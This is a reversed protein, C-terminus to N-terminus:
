KAARRIAEMATDTVNDTGYQESLKRICEGWEAAQAESFYLQVLKVHRSLTREKVGNPVTARGPADDDPDIDIPTDALLEMIHEDEFGLEVGIDDADLEFQISKIVESLLEDQFDGRKQNMKITLAKAQAETLGDLFVMPGETFGEEQAMTWRHEGDIIVDHVVGEQDTHWILLAQSALWGDTRLGHRLSEKMHETMRNPNWENPKVGALSGVVVEGRIQVM